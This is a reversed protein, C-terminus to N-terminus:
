GRRRLAIAVLVGVLVLAVGAGPVSAQPLDAAAADLTTARHVRHPSTDIFLQPYEITIDGDVDVFTSNGPGLEPLTLTEGDMTVNIWPAAGWGENTLNWGGNEFRPEIWAGMHRVNQIMWDFGALQDAILDPIPEGYVPIFQDEHVEYTFGPVGLVGYAWDDSAGSVIYLEAGQMADVRGNTANEFPSELSTFFADDPSPDHTWGWPWYFEAIGTHMTIVMDPMIEQQFAANAATEAESFASPGHYTGDAITSGAGDEGFHFDYNRNPDVQRSNKRTDATNGDVNVIPTAYVETQALFALTAEDGAAAKTLLDELWYMILETGLYENGHHSGDLYVRLKVGTSLAAADYAIREDTVRITHLPLGSSTMGITLREVFDPQAAEWEAFATDVDTAHHVLQNLGLPDPVALLPAFRALGLNSGPHHAAALPAAFAAGLLLAALLLSSRM